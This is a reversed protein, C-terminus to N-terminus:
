EGFTYALGLGLLHAHLNYLGTNGVAQSFVRGRRDNQKIYQYALDAHLGPTLQYGLGVTVANRENEPLLPTVFETPEAATHYLYGGRLTLKSSHQYETGIRFGHTDKNDPTLTFDPTTNDAADFDVTVSHFAGWGVYQYDAMVTWNSRLKYALGISGQQPLMFQTSAKHGRTADLPAGAAFQPGVVADVPTGGPLGLPNGAALTLNTPIQRFTGDGKYTMTKRTLWHAGISLQDSIKLIAGVNVAFGNGDATLRSDAFDTGTPIGLAAFTFTQGTVLQESLDVRQNLEVSGHVYAVGLGLKLRPDVEYAVTPQVYISRIKTNYGLFRGEFGATPWKTELGYPVYVGAGITLKPTLAHTVFGSPVPILPDDLDTHQLLVDDTFGGNARILTLGATLHTGSLGVLGAPNFFIASGDPCPSAAAVGGRAMTCSNHEYIGFGQASLLAPLGLSLVLASWANRRM